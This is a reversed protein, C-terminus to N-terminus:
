IVREGERWVARVVGQRGGQPLDVLRVQILDARQGIAIQGRATNVVFPQANILNSSGTTSYRVHGIARTGKLRDLDASHFVQSVLGMAVHRKFQTGPGDATV